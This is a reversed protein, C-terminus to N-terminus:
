GFLKSKLLGVEEGWQFNYFEMDYETLKTYNNAFMDIHDPDFGKELDLKLFKKNMLDFVALTFHKSVHNYTWFMRKSIWDQLFISAMEPLSSQYCIKGFKRVNDQSLEFIEKKTQESLKGLVNYDQVAKIRMANDFTVIDGALVFLDNWNPICIDIEPKMGFDYITKGSEKNVNFMGANQYYEHIFINVSKLMELMRKDTQMMLLAVRHDVRNDKIDWNWNFPDISHITFRNGNALNWQHLYELYPAVRCSGMVLIVEKGTGITFFGDTLQQRKIQVTNIM